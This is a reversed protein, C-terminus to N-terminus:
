RSLAHWYTVVDLSTLCSPWFSNDHRSGLKVEYHQDQVPCQALISQVTYDVGQM